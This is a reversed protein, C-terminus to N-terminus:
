NMGKIMLGFIHMVFMIWLFYTKNFNSDVIYYAGVTGFIMNESLSFTDYAFHCIQVSRRQRKRKTATKEVDFEKEDVSPIPGQTYEDINEIDDDSSSIDDVAQLPCPEPLFIQIKIQFNHFQARNALHNKLKLCLM